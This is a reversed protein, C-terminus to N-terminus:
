ATLSPSRSGTRKRSAASRPRSWRYGVKISKRDVRHNNSQARYRSSCRYAKEASQRSSNKRSCARVAVANITSRCTHSPHERRRIGSKCGGEQCWRHYCSSRQGRDNCEEARHLNHPPDSILTWRGGVGWGVGAAATANRIALARMPKRASAVVAEALDFRQASKPRGGHDRTTENTPVVTGRVAMLCHETQGRLWDGMRM